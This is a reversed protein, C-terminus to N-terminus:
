ETEEEVTVEDGIKTFPNNGVVLNKIKGEIETPLKVM